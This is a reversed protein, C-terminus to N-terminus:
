ITRRITKDYWYKDEDYYEDLGDQYDLDSRLIDPRKEWKEWERYNRCMRCSCSWASHNRLHGKREPTPEDTPDLRKIQRSQYRDTYHQRETFTRNM